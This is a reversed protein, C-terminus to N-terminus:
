ARVPTGVHAAIEGVVFPLDDEVQWWSYRLVTIGHSRLHPDKARDRNLATPTGHYRGSDVEVVLGPGPFHFDVEKGHVTANTEYGTIRAAELARHLVREGGSLLTRPADHRDLVARLRKAGRRGPTRALIEHLEEATLLRKVYAENVAWELESPYATDAFDLLARAPSTIPLGDVTGLDESAIRTTRHVRIGDRSRRCRGVVTVHVPGPRPGVIGFQELATRQSIYAEAGLALAAAFLPARDPAVDHGVLYVGRHRRHLRGQTVRHDVM